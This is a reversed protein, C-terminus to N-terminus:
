RVYESSSRTLSPSLVDAAMTNVYNEWIISVDAGFTNVCQFKSVIPQWKWTPM